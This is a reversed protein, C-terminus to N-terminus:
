IDPNISTLFNRETSSIGGGGMRSGPDASSQCAISSVHAAAEGRVPERQSNVLLTRDLFQVSLGLFPPPLVAPAQGLSGPHEQM